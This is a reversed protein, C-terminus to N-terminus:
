RAKLASQAMPCVSFVQAESSPTSVHARMDSLRSSGHAREAFRTLHPLDEDRSLRYVASFGPLFLLLVWLHKVSM